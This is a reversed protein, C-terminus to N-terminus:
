HSGQQEDAQRAEPAVQDPTVHLAHGIHRISTGLAHRTHTYSKGLASGSSSGAVSIAVDTNEQATSLAHTTETGSNALAQETSGSVAIIKQAPHRGPSAWGIDNAPLTDIRAITDAPFNSIEMKTALPWENSSLFASGNMPANVEGLNIVQSTALPVMDVCRDAGCGRRCLTENLFSAHKGPTVWVTPGHSLAHLTSARTVQSVDCVTNEHAAAYWYEAHWTTHALDASSAYVLAAVHETDLHHGHSGCDKAWLHYFHLEAIPHDATSRSSPSAQGYITGDEKAVVPKRLSSTFEAPLNSCDQRAIMFSPLFQQLLTQETQDDLGDHDSDVAQAAASLSYSAILLLLLGFRRMNTKSARLDYANQDIPSM